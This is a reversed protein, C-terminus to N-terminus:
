RPSHEDSGGQSQDRQIVYFINRDLAGPKELTFAKLCARLKWGTEAFVTELEQPTHSREQHEEQIKRYSNGEERLFAILQIRWIRDAANYHSEWLLTLEPEDLCSIGPSSGAPLKEVLNLNFIFFGGPRVSQGISHFARQLDATSLLYNLGDQYLVALDGPAPLDLARMDQRYFSVPLTCAAAKDRALALMERSIDVGCVEYGRRAWPLTSNGTGCALDIIRARPEIQFHRFLQELYDVWEEYNVGALLYDYIAALDSYAQVM